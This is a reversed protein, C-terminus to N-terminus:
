DGLRELIHPIHVQDAKYNGTLAYMVLNVGFRMSMEQSRKGSSYGSKQTYDAWGSAWDNSGIIVSSVGDRGSVSQQELWIVGNDYRGSFTDLLYFSRGLVHDKSIPMIPPINLSSTITRLAAANPSSESNSNATTQDRTDFLITGGLDLYSQINQIAKASINAQNATVGWYIVPFFVLTDNEPDLGVVGSPEISTRRTLTDALNQLGREFMSDLGADGTKIYALYIGQAYKPDNGVDAFATSSTTFSAIFLLCVMMGFSLKRFFDSHLIIMIAWDLALLLLALLLLMPMLDREYESNYHSQSVSAPLNSIENLANLATGLNLAYQFGGKGYIGPPHIASPVISDPNAADIAKVGSPAPILKGDGDMIVVADLTAQNQPINVSSGQAMSLLRRLFNVYLGSLAFESWEPTATTHVLVILGREYADATIFPTGDNLQAWIKGEMDQAPDALVQQSVTLHEPIPLGYLPSTKAFPAIEQPKEWTLAGSLSRGGARLAVPFLFQDKIKSTNEGSFRLLLGGDKVWKDLRDLTESPMSTVDPLIMLSVNKDLLTNIGGITIDAYPELARKLYYGAGILPSAETDEEASVIGVNRKHFREDLLLTAGAGARGNIKFSTITNKLNEVIKFGIPQPLKAPSLLANQIDLVAGDQGNIQVNVPLNEPIAPPADVRVTVDYKDKAPKSDSKAPRLLLPLQAADPTIIHLSGQKQLARALTNFSGEDLGHSLYISDITKSGSMDDLLKIVADYDAPISQPRLGRLISIADSAGLAGYQVAEGSGIRPATLLIYAERGERGAKALIEEATAMQRQWNQASAWGNDMVIRVAGNGTIGKAANLVPQALAIIVLAAICLRLFLIWWPTKAPVTETAKLGMLFRAAPFFIKKPQPPTIRLLYWLIPLGLLASLMIPNLFVLQSLFGMM